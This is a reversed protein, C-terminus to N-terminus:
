LLVVCSFRNCFYYLAKCQLRLAPLVLRVFLVRLPSHHVHFDVGIGVRGDDKKDGSLRAMRAIVKKLARIKLHNLYLHSGSSPNKFTDSLQNKMPDSIPYRGM